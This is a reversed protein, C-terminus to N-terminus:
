RALRYLDLLKKYFVRDSRDEVLGENLFLRDFIHQNSRFRDKYFEGLILSSLELRMLVPPPLIGMHLLQKISNSHYHIHHHCGHPCTKISVTDECKDCYVLEPLVIITFHSKKYSDLVSKTQNQDYFVGLGHHNQGLVIKDCGFNSVLACELLPHLHFDFIKINPLPILVVKDQPLYQKIFTEFCSKKLEYSLGEEGYSEIMFIVLLDAKDIAWRLIKEHARHLPDFSVVMGTMKAVGYSKKIENLRQKQEKIFSNPLTLEGAICLGEEVGLECSSLRFIDFFRKDNKFIDSLKISGVCVGDLMFDLEDGIKAERIVSQSHQPAFTIPINKHAPASKIFADREEESMLKKVDGFVGEKICSLIQYEDKQITIQRNKRLSEM